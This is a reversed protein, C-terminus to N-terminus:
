KNYKAQNTSNARHTSDNTKTMNKEIHDKQEKQELREEQIVKM